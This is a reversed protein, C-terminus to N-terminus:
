NELSNLKSLIGRAGQRAKSPEDLKEAFQELIMMIKDYAGIRM